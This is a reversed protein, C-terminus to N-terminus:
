EPLRRQPLLAPCPQRPLLAVPRKTTIDELAVWAATMGGLPYTSMHISDSHTHQESGNLFNISQFLTAEHGLLASVLNRLGSTEGAHRVRASKRFVFMFKNDYRQEVQKRDILHALDANIGDVVELSFFSPLVTFGNVEFGLLSTQRAASLAGFAPSAALRQALTPGASADPPPLHAFDRSSVPSFYRKNLGLKKYVPVNHLLRHRQFINYVAYSLKLRRLM